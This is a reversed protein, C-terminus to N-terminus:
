RAPQGPPINAPAATSSGAVPIRVVNVLTNGDTCFATGEVRSTTPPCLEKVAPKEPVSPVCPKPQPKAIEALSGLDGGDVAGGTTKRIKKDLWAALKKGEKQSERQVVAPPTVTKCPDAAPKSSQQGVALSATLIVARMSVVKVYTAVNM